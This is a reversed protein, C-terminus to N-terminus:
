ADVIFERVLNRSQESLTTNNSYASVIIWTRTKDLPVCVVQVIAEASPSPGRGAVAFDGTQDAPDFVSFNFRRLATESIELCVQVSTANPATRPITKVFTGWHLNLDM